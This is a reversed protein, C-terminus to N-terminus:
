EIKAQRRCLSARLVSHWTGVHQRSTVTADDVVLEQFIFIGM